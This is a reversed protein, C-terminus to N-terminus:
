LRLYPNFHEHMWRHLKENNLSTVLGNSKFNKFSAHMRGEQLSFVSSDCLVTIMRAVDSKESAQAHHGSVERISSVQDFNSLLTSLIHSAKSARLIAHETKNAGLHRMSEKVIRNLHEMHLDCPINHGERGQVNVFRSYILQQALQPSMYFAYQCLLNFAEISYNTRQSARFLLFLYKWCRLVRLGNGERIADHFELYLIGLSLVEKGYEM